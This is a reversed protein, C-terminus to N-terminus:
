LKSAEYDRHQQANDAINDICAPCVQYTLYETMREPPAVAGCQECVELTEYEDNIRM